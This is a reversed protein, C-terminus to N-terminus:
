SESRCMQAVEALEPRTSAPHVDRFAADLAEALAEDASPFLHGYTDM